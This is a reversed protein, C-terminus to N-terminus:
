SQFEKVAICIVVLTMIISFSAVIMWQVYTLDREVERSPQWRVM